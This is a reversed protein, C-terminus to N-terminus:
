EYLVEEELIDDIIVVVNDEIRKHEDYEYQCKGGCAYCFGREIIHVPNTTHKNIAKVKRLMKDLKDLLVVRKLIQGVDICNM